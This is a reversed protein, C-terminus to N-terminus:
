HRFHRLGSFVMPVGRADCAAIVEADRVSGGPQLVAAVGGALAAEVGDAFPFFADSALVSGQAREGAKRLALHVSDVRSMQGAGVGVIERGRALVIANSKVHKGVRAAFYLGAWQEETPAVKTPVKCDARTEVALNRQQLLLGGVLPKHELEDARRSSPGFPGCALLRVSKGWKPKTTLLEVAAPDFSPAIIAEVFRGGSVLFDACAADLPRTFALVSGFASLPDGAWALELARAMTDAAAAGCPNNHKIVCAFPEDFEKALSLASDLDVLNNFSLAKGGLVEATAVGVEVDGAARYFAASQHPNEGYRLDAVKRAALAFSPPFPGATRGSEVEQKWLWQSIAADYRATLAFAKYALERKLELSLAGGHKELEDLVRGYDAPDTVVGVFRHNKAASRVMAPGGIDINEIADERTVGSKAVTAEFPYLNIVLLDIPGIGHERLSAVHKADDRLALLGGHVKPHLTKVRGDMMEPFGTVEAVERVAIGAKRLMAATGGTSLIEVGRQALARVFNEAGAKDSLSVLAREVKNPGTKNTM